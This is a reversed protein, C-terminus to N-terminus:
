VNELLVDILKILLVDASTTEYNPKEVLNRSAVVVDAYEALVARAKALTQEATEIQVWGADLVMETGRDNEAVWVDRDWFSESIFPETAFTYTVNKHRPHAVVVGPKIWAYEAPIQKETTM